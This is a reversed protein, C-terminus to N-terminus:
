LWRVWVIAAAAAAVRGALMINASVVVVDAPPASLSAGFALGAVFKFWDSNYLLVSGVSLTGIVSGGGSLQSLSEMNGWDAANCVDRQSGSKSKERQSNTHYVYSSIM